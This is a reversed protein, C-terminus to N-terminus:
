ARLTTRQSDLSGPFEPFYNDATNRTTASPARTCNEDCGPLILGSQTWLPARVLVGLKLAIPQAEPLRIASTVMAVRM